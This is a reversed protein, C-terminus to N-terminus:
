ARKELKWGGMPLSEGSWGEAVLLTADPLVITSRGHAVGHLERGDDIRSEDSWVSRGRRALRVDRGGISASCRISVMEVDRDLERM